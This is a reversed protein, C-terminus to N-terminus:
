FEEVRWRAILEIVPASKVGEPIIPDDYKSIGISDIDNIGIEWAPRVILEKISIALKLDFDTENLTKGTYNVPALLFGSTKKLHELFQDLNTSTKPTMLNTRAVILMLGKNTQTDVNTSIIIKYASPNHRQIGTIVTIRLQNNKDFNGLSIQWAQFIKKAADWNEFGLGLIPLASISSNYTYLTGLWKADDWLKVDILSIVKRDSHKGKSQQQFFDQADLPGDLENEKTPLTIQDFSIGKNWARTRLLPFQKANKKPKWDAILVKPTSGFVNLHGLSTDSYILARSFGRERHAVKQLYLEIDDIIAIHQVFEGIFNILGEENAARAELTPEIPKIPHQVKIFADGENNETTVKLGITCSAVPEVIIKASSRFPMIKENLSTAFFAEVATLITEAVFISHASSPATVILKCGLINTHYSVKTRDDIQPHLPLQSRAPQEYIKKIFDDIDNDSWQESPFGENRLEDKYGLAYLLLGKPIFLNMNELVEPLEGLISLQELSTTLMMIGFIIETNQYNEKFKKLKKEKLLLHPTITNLLEFCLLVHPIRGLLLELRTLEQLCPLSHPSIKGEEFFYAVCRETAALACCRAAWLLGADTYASALGMLCFILDDRHERKILRELARGLLNIAEYHLGAELKRFGHEMLPIAGAIDSRRKELTAIVLEFANDFEDSAIGLASMETLLNALREFPFDGLKEADKIIEAFTVWISNLAEAKGSKIADQTAILTRGVKAILANNPRTKDSALSEFIDILTKKRENIKAANATLTGRHVQSVLVMWLNLGLQIDEAQNSKRFLQEIIDYTSNLQQYDDFWFIVTWAYDYAIHLRHKDSDIEEALRQARLFYGDLQVRPRGLGRILLAARLCDELLQYRAGRYYEPDAINKELEDLENQRKTDMPGIKRELSPRLEEIKLAEIAVDVRDNNIVSKIIWSRDLITVPIGTEQTLTDESNARSKDPAFQNTLFYIRKYGRNTGSIALVDKRVKSKWDKKASFAFAWRENAAKPDSGIWLESIDSSLLITESDAKSDGGGTPGTQPRLNPCIEKEALRRAFYAFENEQSRNTITDLHYELLSPTLNITQSSTSDSYLDPHKGRMYTIADPLSIAHKGLRSKDNNTM